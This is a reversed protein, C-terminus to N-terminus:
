TRPLTTKLAEEKGTEGAKQATGIETFMVPLYRAELAEVEKRFEKATKVKDGQKKAMLPMM